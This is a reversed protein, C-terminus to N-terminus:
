SHSGHSSGHQEGQQGLACVGNGLVHTVAAPLCLDVVEAGELGFGLM